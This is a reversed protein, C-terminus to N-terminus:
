FVKVNQKFQRAKPEVRIAGSFERGIAKRLTHGTLNLYQDCVSQIHPWSRQTLVQIFVVEDTGIRDVGAKRLSKADQLAQNTAEEINDM